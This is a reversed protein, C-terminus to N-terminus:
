TYTWNYKAIQAIGKNEKKMHRSIIAITTQNMLLGCKYEVLFMISCLQEHAWHFVLMFELQSKTNWLYSVPCKESVWQSMNQDEAFKTWLVIWLKIDGQLLVM